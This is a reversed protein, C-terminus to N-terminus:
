VHSYLEDVRELSIKSSIRRKHRWHEDLLEGFADFNESSIAELIRHGLEKIRHLSDLVVAHSADGDTSLARAQDALIDLSARRVGTYYVHTNAVFDSLAGASLALPRVSVIGTRDIDLVTMGSFVAMYQDQKGIPKHLVSLEIECAEEALEHLPVPCRLYERIATLLGVLSCSG